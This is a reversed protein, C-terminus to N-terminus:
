GDYSLKLVADFNEKKVTAKNKQDKITNISFQNKIIKRPVICEINLKIGAAPNQIISHTLTITPIM